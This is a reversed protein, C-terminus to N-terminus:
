ERQNSEGKRERKQEEEKIEYREKGLGEARVDRVGV